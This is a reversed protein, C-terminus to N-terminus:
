VRDGREESMMQTPVIDQLLGNFLGQHPGRMSSPAFGRENEQCQFFGSLSSANAYNNVCTASNVVNLHSSPSSTTTSNYLMAVQAQAQAQAQAQDHRFQQHQQPLMFLGSTPGLVSPESHLFGLSARSTAPCPHTHQGEYTTVVVSPDESSREVRKKVGCAATTCRYYSRPHPSNKVAKQGYKRWRYGDDLHDVESKTMFAFRPERPKKQHKKKPKLRLMSIWCFLITLM